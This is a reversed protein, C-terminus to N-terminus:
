FSLLARKQKYSRRIIMILGSVFDLFIRYHEKQKWFQFISNWIIDENFSKCHLKGNTQIVGRGEFNKNACGILLPCKLAGGGCCSSWGLYSAWGISSLGLNGGCFPNINITALRITDCVVM